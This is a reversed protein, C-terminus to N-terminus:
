VRTSFPLLCSTIEYVSRRRTSGPICSIKSLRVRAFGLGYASRTYVWIGIAQAWIAVFPAKCRVRAPFVMYMTLCGVVAENGSIPRWNPPLCRSIRLKSCCSSFSRLKAKLEDEGM